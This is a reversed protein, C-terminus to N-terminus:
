QQTEGKTKTTPKKRGHLCASEFRRANFRPNTETFAASLEGILRIMLDNRFPRKGGATATNYIADAIMQYHKRTM